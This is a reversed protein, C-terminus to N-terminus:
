TSMHVHRGDRQLMTDCVSSNTLVNYLETQSNKVCATSCAYPWHFAYKVLLV